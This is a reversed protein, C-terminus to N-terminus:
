NGINNAQQEGFAMIIGAIVIAALVIVGAIVAFEVSLSGRDGDHRLREWRERVEHATLHWCTSIWTLM